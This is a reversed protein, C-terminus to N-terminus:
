TIFAASVDHAESRLEWQGIFIVEGRCQFCHGLRCKSQCCGDYRMCYGMITEELAMVRMLLIDVMPVLFGYRTWWM